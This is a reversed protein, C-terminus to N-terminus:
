PPGRRVGPPNRSARASGTSGRMESSGSIWLRAGHFSRSWTAWHIPPPAEVASNVLGPRITLLYKIRDGDDAEIARYLDEAGLM